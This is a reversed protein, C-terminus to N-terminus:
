LIEKAYQKSIDDALEMGSFVEGATSFILKFAIWILDLEAARDSDVVWRGDKEYAILYNEPMQRITKSHENYETSIGFRRPDKFPKGLKKEYHEVAEKTLPFLCGFGLISYDFVYTSFPNFHEDALKDFLAQPIATDYKTLGYYKALDDKSAGEPFIRRIEEISKIKVM